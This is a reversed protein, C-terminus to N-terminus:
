DPGSGGAAKQLLGGARSVASKKIVADASLYIETLMPSPINLGVATEEQEQFLVTLLRNDRTKGAPNDINRWHSRLSRLSLESM